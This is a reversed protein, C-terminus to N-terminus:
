LGAKISILRLVSDINEELDQTIADGIRKEFEMMLEDISDGLLPRPAIGELGIKRAILFALQRETPLKGNEMPRPLVPKIKVWEEIKSIPPMKGARRGYEVYKWYDQLSLWLEYKSGDIDIAWDLTDRLKYSANVDNADLKGQYLSILKVGMDEMVKKLNVFVSDM